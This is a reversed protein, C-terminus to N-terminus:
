YVFHAIAARITMFAVAGSSFLYAYFRHMITNYTCHIFSHLGRFIFFVWAANVYGSDVQKTVFLYLALIYFLVPIEFLNRLNDAPNNVDPPSHKQLEGSKCLQAIPIKSKAIFPIRKTFMYIQVAFTLIIMALVPGFIAEQHYTSM